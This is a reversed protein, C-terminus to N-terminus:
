AKKKLNIDRAQAGKNPNAPAGTTPTSPVSTASIEPKQSEPKPIDDPCSIHPQLMGNERGYSYEQNRL